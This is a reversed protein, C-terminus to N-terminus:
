GPGCWSSPSHTSLFPTTTQPHLVSLHHPPWLEEGLVWAAFSAEQSPFGGRMSAEGQPGQCKAASAQPCSPHDLETVGSVVCYM